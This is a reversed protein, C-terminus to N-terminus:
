WDFQEKAQFVFSDIENFNDFNNSIIRDKSIKQEEEEKKDVSIFAIYSIYGKRLFLAITRWIMWVKSSNIKIEM